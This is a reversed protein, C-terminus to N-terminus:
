SALGACSVVSYPFNIHAFLDIRTQRTVYLGGGLSFKVFLKTFAPRDQKEAFVAPRENCFMRVAGKRLDAGSTGAASFGSKHRM